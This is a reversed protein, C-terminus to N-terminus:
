SAAPDLAPRRHEHRVEYHKMEEIDAFFPRVATFFDRFQRSQRFGELHDTLSTWEIRVTFRDPEEHGQSIEYALCREDADLVTAATRYAALFEEARDAAVRYRIYEVIM